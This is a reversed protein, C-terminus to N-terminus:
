FYIEFCLLVYYYMIILWLRLSFRVIGDVFFMFIGAQLDVDNDLGDLSLQYRYSLSLHALPDSLQAAMLQYSLAQAHKFFVM